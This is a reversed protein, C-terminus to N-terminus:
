EGKVISSDKVFYYIGNKVDYKKTSTIFVQKFEQIFDLLNDEHAKDLESLIDDLIVVPKKDESEILFYPCLKLALVALRNEGQSGYLGINKDDRTLYFDDRHLGISTMKLRLDNLVNNKYLLFLKNEYDEETDILTEYHIITENEEKTLKEYVKSLKLNLQSIYNKREKYIKYSENILQETLTKLMLNSEDINSKLLDNREKLIKNYNSLYRIYNGNIKSINVDLFFRREKPSNKLLNVDSPIFYLCNFLATLESLKNIKKNDLLIQKGNKSIIIEIDKSNNLSEIKAKIYADSSEKNILSQNNTTRFSRALSIYYISEIINTKGQANEGYIFNIGKNFFLEINRYNRFNVLKIFNITM